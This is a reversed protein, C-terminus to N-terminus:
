DNIADGRALRAGLALDQLQRWGAHLTQWGPAGNRPLHGGLKAIAAVCQAITASAQLKAKPVARTLIRFELATLLHKWTTEPAESVV